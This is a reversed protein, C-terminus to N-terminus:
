RSSTRSCRSRTGASASLIIVDNMTSFEGARITMTGKMAAKTAGNVPLTAGATRAQITPPAIAIVDAIV